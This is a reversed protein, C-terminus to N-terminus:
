VSMSSEPPPAFPESDISRLSPGPLFSLSAVVPPPALHPAPSVLGLVCHCVICCSIPSLQDDAAENSQCPSAQAMPCCEGLPCCCTATDGAPDSQTVLFRPVPVATAVVLIVLPVLAALRMVVRRM